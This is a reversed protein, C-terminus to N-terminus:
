PASPGQRVQHCHYCGFAVRSRNYDYARTFDYPPRHLLRAMGPMVVKRMYAAKAQKDAEALYGYIANRMQADMGGSYQEWGLIQFHPEPLAVVAPMRWDRDGPNKGHCTECRVRDSGGVIPALAVRAWGMVATEMFSVIAERSRKRGEPYIADDPAYAITTTTRGLGALVVVGAIMVAATGALAKRVRRAGPPEWSLAARASEPDLSAHPDGAALELLAALPAGRRVHRLLLPPRRTDRAHVAVTSTGLLRDIWSRGCRVEGIDHIALETSRRGNVHVLRFDTLAYRAGPPWVARSSWLLREWPLPIEM